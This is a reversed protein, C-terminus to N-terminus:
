FTDVNLGSARAGDAARVVAARDFLDVLPVGARQVTGFFLARVFDLADRGLTSTLREATWQSFFAERGTLAFPIRLYPSAWGHAPARAPRQIVFATADVSRARLMAISGRRAVSWREFGAGTLFEGPFDPEGREHAALRHEGIRSEGRSIAPVGHRALREALIAGREVDRGTYGHAINALAKGADRWGLREAIEGLAERADEVDSGVQAYHPYPKHWEAQAATVNRIVQAAASAIARQTPEDDFWPRAGRTAPRAEFASIARFWREFGAAYHEYARQLSAADYKKRTSGLLHHTVGGPVYLDDELFTLMFEAALVERVLVALAAAARSRDEWMKERQFHAAHQALQRLIEAEIAVYRVRAQNSAALLPEGTALLEARVDLPVGAPNRYRRV